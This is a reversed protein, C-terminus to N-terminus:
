TSQYYTTDDRYLKSVEGDVRMSELHAITKLIAFRKDLPALKQWGTGSADARWTIEASIQYATKPKDRLAKLIESNRQKHHQILEEIRTQLGTFSNQHGPLVLNVDLQKLANLSDLYDGLPNESSQPYLGLNPTITPTTNPLIHDGSILIKKAPEYLCVHGPSHGPTWLVQFSFLRTHIIEGGRLTIDPLTPAVSEEMGLSVTQLPPLEGTIVGHIHLWHDIHEFLEGMNIYKPKILNKELYHLYIKAHSLQKLRGALGYHDPHIHTVVIQSIDEFDIGIEALQRKLSNLM